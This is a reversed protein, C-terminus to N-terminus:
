ELTTPRAATAESPTTNDYHVKGNNPDTANEAGWASDPGGGVEGAWSDYFSSGGGQAATPLLLLGLGVGVACFRRGMCKFLCPFQDIRTKRMILGLFDLGKARRQDAPRGQLFAM